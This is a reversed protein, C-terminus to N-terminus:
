NRKSGAEMDEEYHSAASASATDLPLAEQQHAASLGLASASPSECAEDAATSALYATWPINVLNVFLVREDVPVLAFNVLQVAPRIVTMFAHLCVFVFMYVIVYMCVYMVYTCVYMCLM